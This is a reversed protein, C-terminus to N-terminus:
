YLVSAAALAGISSKFFPFNVDLELQFVPFDVDLSQITQSFGRYINVFNKLQFVVDPELDIKKAGISPKFFLFTFM